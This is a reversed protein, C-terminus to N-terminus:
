SHPPPSSSIIYPVLLTCPFLSSLSPIFCSYSFFVHSSCVPFFTTFLQQASSSFPLYRPLSPPQIIQNFTNFTLPSLLCHLLSSSLLLQSPTFLSSPFKISGQLAFCCCFHTVFCFFVSSLPLMFECSWFRLFSQIFINGMAAASVSWFTLIIWIFALKHICPSIHFHSLFPHVISHINLAPLSSTSADVNVPRFLTSCEYM